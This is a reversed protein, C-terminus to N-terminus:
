YLSPLRPLLTKRGCEEQTVPVLSWHGGYGARPTGAEPFRLVAYSVSDDM